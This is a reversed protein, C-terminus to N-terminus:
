SKLRQPFINEFIDYHSNTWTDIKIIQCTSELSYVDYEFIIVDNYFFKIKEIKSDVDIFIGSIPCRSNLCCINDKINQKTFTNLIYANKIINKSNNPNLFYEIRSPEIYKITNIKDTPCILTYM